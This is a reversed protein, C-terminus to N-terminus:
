ITVRNKREEFSVLPSLNREAGNMGLPDKKRRGLFQVFGFNREAGNMGLPFKKRRGLVFGFNREAGNM